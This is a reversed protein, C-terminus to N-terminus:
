QGKKHKSVDKIEVTKIIELSKKDPRVINKSFLPTINFLPDKVVISAM